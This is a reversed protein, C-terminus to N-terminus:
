WGIFQQIEPINDLMLRMQKATYYKFWQRKEKTMGFLELGPLSAIGLWHLLEEMEADLNKYRLTHDMDNHYFFPKRPINCAQKVYREVFEADTPVPDLVAAAHNRNYIAHAIKTAIIDRPDRVVSFSLYGSEPILKNDLLYVKAVHHHAVHESGPIKELMRACARSATHPEAFFMFKHEHNIIM